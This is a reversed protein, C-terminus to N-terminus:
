HSHEVKLQKQEGNHQHSHAHTQANSHDHEDGGHSHGGGMQQYAGAEPEFPESSVMVEIGLGRIMEDLVHDHLYRVFKNEIQIPIHRNGLHYAAKMLMLADDSFVTSVQQPAAIVKVFYGKDSKLVDGGRLLGGRPLLLGAEEGNDLVLRVRSKIRMDITLSIYTKCIIHNAYKAQIVEILKIM